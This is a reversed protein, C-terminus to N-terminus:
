SVPLFPFNSQKMLLNILPIIGVSLAEKEGVILAFVIKGVQEESLVFGAIMASINFLMKWIVLLSPHINFSKSLPTSINVYM